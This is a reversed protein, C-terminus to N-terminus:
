NRVLQLDAILQLNRIKLPDVVDDEHRHTEDDYEGYQYGSNYSACEPM